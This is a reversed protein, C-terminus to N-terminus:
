DENLEKWKLRIKNEENEENLYIKVMKQIGEKVSPFEDIWFVKYARYTTRFIKWSPRVVEYISVACAHGCFESNIHCEFERNDIVVTKKAM